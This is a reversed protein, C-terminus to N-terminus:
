EWRGPLHRTLLQLAPLFYCVKLAEFLDSGESDERVTMIKGDPLVVEMELVNDVALGYRNSKLSYGSGLLFGAVGGIGGVVNKGTNEMSAYVREWLCGAGVDIYRDKGSIDIKDFFTM